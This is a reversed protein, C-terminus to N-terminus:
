TPLSCGILPSPYKVLSLVNSAFVLSELLSVFSSPRIFSPLLLQAFASPCCRTTAVYYASFGVAEVDWDEVHLSGEM